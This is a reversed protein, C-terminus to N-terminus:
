AGRRSRARSRAAPWPRVVKEAIRDFQEENCRSWARSCTSTTAPRRPSTAAAGQTDKPFCSGGWGPGPRLFEHGIRKDYGMGLVVDNVDAGVAECVAAVANVFSLKTALFANCAYKITEASAPIPSWSRRRCASTSRRGGPHGRGPRRQRHRRPRPPPLRAGGLGRPPVGPQVRRVRRQPRAGARGTRTSGSRCPRSTSWSRDRAAAHPGIERAAAEIYSCTPRATTARPRRCACTSSSPTAAANGRRRARLHLRGPSSARGSWTRSAPRSSRSRARTLREVKAEDIDACIVDHGLHAFCAGTTLGVYGTGIIAVRNDM